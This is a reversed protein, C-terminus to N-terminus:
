SAASLCVGAPWTLLECAARLKSGAEQKGVKCKSPHVAPVAHVAPLAHVACPELLHTTNFCLTCPSRHLCTIGATDFLCLMRLVPLTAALSTAACPKPHCVSHAYCAFCAHCVQGDALQKELEGIQKLAAAKDEQLQQVEERKTTLSDQLAAREQQNKLQNSIASRAQWLHVLDSSLLRSSLIM